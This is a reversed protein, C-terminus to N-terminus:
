QSLRVAVTKQEGPRCTTTSTKQSTDGVFMVVHRGSNVSIGLKPTTGMPHGDLAIRAPPISNLNLICTGESMSATEPSEVAAALRSARIGELAVRRRRKNNTSIPVTSAPVQSIAPTVVASEPSDNPEDNSVVFTRSSQSDFILPFRVTKYGPRNAELMWNKSNDVEVSRSWDSLARREDSSVLAISTGPSRVDFSAAGRLVRLAVPALERVEGAALTVTSKQSAYRDGGDFVVTHEGPALDRVDVPLLGRERGDVVLRVGDQGSTARIGATTQRVAAPAPPTSFRDREAYGLALVTVVAAGVGLRKVTRARRAAGISAEVSGSFLPPVTGAVAFPPVTSQRSGPPPRVTHPPLQPM